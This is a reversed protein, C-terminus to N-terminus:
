RYKSPDIGYKRLLRWLSKREHRAERAAQSLSGAARHLLVDLYRREFREVHEAKVQAFPRSFDVPAEHESPKDEEQRPSEGPPSTTPQELQVDDLELLRRSTAMVLSRYVVSELERVNGPWTQSQLRGMAAPSFGVYERQERENFLAVFHDVLLPVDDLRDRLPPVRVNLTNMRYYLDERFRGQRVAQSLDRHTTTLIRVDAKVTKSGGVLKYERFQILRLLKAQVNPSIDGIEDLVLTGGSAENILGASRQDAGTFAGKEHGFIENEFLSEPLATCNAVVFPQKSRRSLVHITRAVLEKGTGTEGYIAVGIDSKAIMDVRKALEIMQPSRGVIVDSKRRGSRRLMGPPRSSSALPRGTAKVIKRLRHLLLADLSRHAIVDAAGHELAAAVQQPDDANVIALVPLEAPNPVSAPSGDLATGPAFAASRQALFRMERLRRVDAVVVQFTETALMRRCEGPDGTAVVLVEHADLLTQV